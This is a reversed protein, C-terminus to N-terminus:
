GRSAGSVGEIANKSPQRLIDMGKMSANYTLLPQLNDDFLLMGAQAAVHKWTYTAWFGRAGLLGIGAVGGLKNM